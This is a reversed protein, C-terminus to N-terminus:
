EPDIIRPDSTLPDPNRQTSSSEMLLNEIEKRLQESDRLAEILETIEVHQLRGSAKARAVFVLNENSGTLSPNQELEILKLKTEQLEMQTEMSEAVAEQLQKQLNKMDADGVTGNESELRLDELASKLLDIEKQLREVVQDPKVGLSDTSASM